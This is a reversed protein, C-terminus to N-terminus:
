KADGSSVKCIVVNRWQVGWKNAQRGPLWIDIWQGPSVNHHKADWGAGTDRATGHYATSGDSNLVTFQTEYSYPKPVTNAVAVTGLGVGEPHGKWYAWDSGPGHDNYSTVMMRKTYCVQRQQPNNGSTSSGEGAHPDGGYPSFNTTTNSAVQFSNDVPKPAPSQPKPAATVVLPAVTTATTSGPAPPGGEFIKKLKALFPNLGTPDAENIPDNHVYAYINMGDGYGIPDPQM